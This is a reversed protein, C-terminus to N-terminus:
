DVGELIGNGLLRFTNEPHGRFTVDLGILIVDSDGNDTSVVTPAGAAGGTDWAPWYGSVLFDGAGISAAV